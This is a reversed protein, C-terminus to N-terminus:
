SKELATLTTQTFQHQITDELYSRLDHRKALRQAHPGKFMLRWSSPDAWPVFVAFDAWGCYGGHEDMCHFSNYAWIGSRSVRFTWKLDVGSGHVVETMAKIMGEVAARRSKTSM